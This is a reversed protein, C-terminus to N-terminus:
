EVPKFMREWRVNDPFPVGEESSLWVLKAKGIIHDEPVFGWYRSDASNQRNDGLMFYYNMGFTYTNTEKGNITISNETVQLQNGEYVEIIRSYLSINQTNLVITMGKAPIVLPGYNDINWPYNQPDQPFVPEHPLYIGKARVITDIGVVNQLQKVKLLNAATLTYEYLGANDSRLGGETIGMKSLTQPSLPTKDTRLFYNFQALPPLSDPKGNIYVQRNIIEFTDAPLAICRKIYNERKDIPRQDDIPYNFVVPDHRKLNDLSGLRCYPLQIAASYSPKGSFPLTNHSFPLSLPTIPMRIGYSFKSVLLYDGVLLTKEMSSTPIIYVEAILTRIFITIIVAFLAAYLWERIGSKNM